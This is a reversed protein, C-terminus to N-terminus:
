SLQAPTTNVRVQKLPVLPHGMLLPLLRRLHACSGFCENWTGVRAFDLWIPQLQLQVLLSLFLHRLRMLGFRSLRQPVSRSM